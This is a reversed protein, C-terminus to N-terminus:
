GSRDGYIEIRQLDLSRLYNKNVKGTSRSIPMDDLIVVGGTLQKEWGVRENVFEMLDQEILHRTATNMSCLKHEGIRGLQEENQELYENRTGIKPALTINKEDMHYCEPKLVVFARPCHLTLERKNPVGLVCVRSVAPHTAIINELEQPLVKKAGRCSMLENQRGVIYLQENDNFFAIDGTIYFDDSDFVSEDRVFCDEGDAMPGIKACNEKCAEELEHGLGGKDRTRDLRFREMDYYGPFVTGGRVCLVGRENPGLLRGSQTDVIKARVGPLLKGCNDCDRLYEEPTVSNMAVANLESAGYGQRVQVINPHEALFKRMEDLYIIKAGMPFVCRVSSIDYQDLHEYTILNYFSAAGLFISAIKYAQIAELYVKPEFDKLIVVNYGSSIAGFMIMRGSVYDLSASCAFNAHSRPISVLDSLCNWHTQAIAKPNGTTGSSMSILAVRKDMPRESVVVPLRGLSKAQLHEYALMDAFCSTASVSRPGSESTTTTQPGDMAIGVVQSGLDASLHEAWHLHNAHCFLFKPEVKKAMYLLEAYPDKHYACCIAGGAVLVGLALILSHDSNDYSVCVMTGPEFHHWDLLACAVSLVKAKLQAGTYQRGSAFDTQQANPTYATTGAYSPPPSM